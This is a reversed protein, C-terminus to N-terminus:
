GIVACSRPRDLKKEDNHALNSITTWASSTCRPWRWMATPMREGDASPMLLKASGNVEKHAEQVAITTGIKSIRGDKLYVDLVKESGENVVLVDKILYNQM